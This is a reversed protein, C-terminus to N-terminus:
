RQIHGIMYKESPKKLMNNAHSPMISKTTGIMMADKPPPLAKQLLYQPRPLSKAVSGFSRFIFDLFTAGEQIYPL